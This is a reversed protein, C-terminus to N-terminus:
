IKHGGAFGTGAGRRGGESVVGNPNTINSGGIGLTAVTRRLGPSHSLIGNPNPLCLVSVNRARQISKTAEWVFNGTAGACRGAGGVCRGAEGVYRPM